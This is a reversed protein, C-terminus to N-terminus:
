KVASKYALLFAQAVDDKSSSNNLTSNKIYIKVDDYNDIYIHGLIKTVKAYAKLACNFDKVKHPLCLNALMNTVDDIKKVFEKIHKGKLRTM